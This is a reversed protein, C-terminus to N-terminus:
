ALGRAALTAGAIFVLLGIVICLMALERTHRAILPAAAYGDLVDALALAEPFLTAVAGAFTLWAGGAVLALALTHILIALFM